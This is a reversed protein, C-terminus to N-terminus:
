RTRRGWRLYACPLLGVSNVLVLAPVWAEKSGNIEEEPRKAVDVLAYVKLVVDALAGLKIATRLAPHLDDWKKRSQKM